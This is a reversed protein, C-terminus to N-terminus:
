VLEELVATVTYVSKPLLIRLQILKFVFEEM